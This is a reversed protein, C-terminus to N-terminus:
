ITIVEVECSLTDSETSLSLSLSVSLSLGVSLCFILISGVACCTEQMFSHIYRVVYVHVHLCMTIIMCMYM